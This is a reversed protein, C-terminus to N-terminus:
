KSKIIFTIKGTSVSAPRTNDSTKSFTLRLVEDRYVKEVSPSVGRELTRVNIVEGMDNVKIEFVLRGSENSVDKPKPIFDWQWGALELQSGEGGGAPGMMARADLKGEENGKDGTKDKDDGQSKQDDRTDKPDEKKTDRVETKATEKVDTKKTEEKKVEKKPEATVISETPQTQVEEVQEESVEQPTDLNQEPQPAADQETQETEAVPQQPQVPGSGENELGFNLEVGYEPHPPFPEKWAM